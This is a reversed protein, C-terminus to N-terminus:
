DQEEDEMLVSVRRIQAVMVTQIDSPLIASWGGAPKVVYEGDQKVQTIGDNVYKEGLIFLDTTMTPFAVARYEIEFGDDEPHVWTYRAEPDILKVM